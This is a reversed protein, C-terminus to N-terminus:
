ADVYDSFEKQYWAKEKLFSPLFKPDSRSIEMHERLKLLTIWNRRRDNETGKYGIVTGM